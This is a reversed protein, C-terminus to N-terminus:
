NPRLDTAFTSDYSLLKEYHRVEQFNAFIQLGRIQATMRAMAIVSVTIDTAVRTWKFSVAGMPEEMHTVTEALPTQVKTDAEQVNTLLQVTQAIGLDMATAGVPSVIADQTSSFIAVAETHVDM